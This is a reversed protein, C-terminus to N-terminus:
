NKIDIGWICLCHLKKTQKNTTTTTTTKINEENVNLISDGFVGIGEVWGAGWGV